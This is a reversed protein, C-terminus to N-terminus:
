VSVGQRAGISIDRTLQTVPVLRGNYFQLARKSCM